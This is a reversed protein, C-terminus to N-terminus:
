NIKLWGGFESEYIFQVASAAPINITASDQSSGTTIGYWVKAGVAGHPTKRKITVIQGDIANNPSLKVRYGSTNAVIKYVPATVELVIDETTPTLTEAKGLVLPETIITFNRYAEIGRNVKVANLGFAELLLEGESSYIQGTGACRLAFAGSAYNPGDLILEAGTGTPGGSFYLYGDNNTNELYHYKDTFSTTGNIYQHGTIYTSGALSIYNSSSISVVDTANVYTRESNIDTLGPDSSFYKVNNSRFELGHDQPTNIIGAESVNSYWMSMKDGYAHDYINLTDHVQLPKNVVVSDKGIRFIKSNENYFDHWNTAHYQLDLNPGTTFGWGEALELKLKDRTSGNSWQNVGISLKVPSSVAGSTSSNLVVNTGDDSLNTTTYGTGDSQVKLIRNATGAIATQAGIDSLVQAATRSSITGNNSVLYTTAATGLAPITMKVGNSTLRLRESNNRRLVMDISQVSSIYAVGSSVVSRLTNTGDTINLSANTFIVNTGDDTISSESYGTGDSQIKLIRNATGTIAQQYWSGHQGDLLDADLGSGTGDNAETWLKQYDKWTSNEMTRVYFGNNRGMIQFRYGSSSNHVINLGIVASSVPGNTSSTNARNGTITNWDSGSSLITRADSLRSDNGQCATGSATGFNKNYATNKVVSVLTKTADTEVIRSATLGGVNINGSVSMAGNITATTGNDSIISETIGTGDSQIKLVRNATGSIAQQYNQLDVDRAFVSTDSINLKLNLAAISAGGIDSLVQTNTRSKVISDSGDIILYKTATSGYAPVNDISVPGNLETGGFVLNVLMLILIFTTKKDM